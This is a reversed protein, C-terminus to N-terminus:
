LDQGADVAITLSATAGQCENGATTPMSVTGTIDQTGSSALTGSAPTPGTVEFCGAPSSTLTAGATWDVALSGGNTLTVSYDASDGPAMNGVPVATTLGGLSIDLTGATFSSNTSDASDNFYAFTGMGVMALAVAIVLVSMAMKTTMFRKM